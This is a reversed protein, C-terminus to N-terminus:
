AHAESTTKNLLVGIAPAAAHREQAEAGRLRTAIKAFLAEPELGFAEALLFLELTDVRRQGAEVRAVHSPSKGLRGALVRQSLGASRRASTLVDVILRYEDSFVPNPRRQSPGHFGM